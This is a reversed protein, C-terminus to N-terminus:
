FDQDPRLLNSLNQKNHETEGQSNTFTSNNNVFRDRLTEGNGPTLNTRVNDEVRSWRTGTYKFLRNPKFDLRLFFDGTTPAAPFATGSSVPYGNPPIGDGVLYGGTESTPSSGPPLPDQLRDGNVYPPHWFPTTDYGSAPVAQEAAAIVADNIQQFKDATSVLNGVTTNGTDGVIQNLIQKYEQSDILPTAKVRWLHPWWTASYGEASRMADKVVYFRKLASQVNEELSYFDKLHPLEIVDGAIIKRGLREVMDNLHFTVFVTDNQLFLGFQSLDFDLDQVNYIGRLDYIDPDYKRDRNELLLLDQINTPSDETYVPKSPDNTNSIYVSGNAVIANATIKTLTITSNAIAGVKTNSQINNGFVYQGVSVNATSNVTINVNASVQSSTVTLTTVQTNPGLYKHIFVSTGGMTFSESIRRDFFKYDNTRRQNQWLSIRPLTLYEV